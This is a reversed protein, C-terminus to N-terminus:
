KNSLINLNHKNKTEISRYDKLTKEILEKLSSLTYKTTKFKSGVMRPKKHHPSNMLIKIAEDSLYEKIVKNKLSLEGINQGIGYPKFDIPTKLIGEGRRISAMEARIEDEDKSGHIREYPSHISDLVKLEEKLQPLRDKNAKNFKDIDSFLEKSDEALINMDSVVRNTEKILKSARNQYRGRYESIDKIVKDSDVSVAKKLTEESKETLSIDADDEAVGEEGTGQSNLFANINSNIGNGNEITIEQFRENESIYQGFLSNNQENIKRTVDRYEEYRERWMAETGVMNVGRFLEQTAADLDETNSTGSESQAARNMLNYYSNALRENASYKRYLSERYNDLYIGFQQQNLGYMQVGFTDKFAQIDDDPIDFNGSSILLNVKKGIMEDLAEAHVSLAEIDLDGKPRFGLKSASLLRNKAISVQTLLKKNEFLNDKMLSEETLKYETEDQMKYKNVMGVLDDYGKQALQLTELKQGHLIKPLDGIDSYSTNDSKKDWAEISPALNQLGEVTNVAKVLNTLNETKNIADYTQQKKRESSLTVLQTLTNIPDSDYGFSAMLKKYTESM